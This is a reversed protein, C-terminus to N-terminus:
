KKEFVDVTSWNEDIFTVVILYNAVIPRRVIAAIRATEGTKNEFQMEPKKIADSIVCWNIHGPIIDIKRLQEEQM